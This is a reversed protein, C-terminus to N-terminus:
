IPKYRGWETDNMKPTIFEGGQISGKNPIMLTRTTAKLDEQTQLKLRTKQPTQAAKEKLQKIEEPNM